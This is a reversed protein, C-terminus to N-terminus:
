LLYFREIIPLLRCGAKSFILLGVELFDLSAFITTLGHAVTPGRVGLKDGGCEGLMRWSIFGSGKPSRAGWGEEGGRGEEGGGVGGGGGM